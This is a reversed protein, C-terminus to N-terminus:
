DPDDDAIRKALQVLDRLHPSLIPQEGTSQHDPLPPLIVHPFRSAAADRRGLESAFAALYKYALAFPLTILLSIILSAPDMLALTLLVPTHFTANSPNQYIIIRPM